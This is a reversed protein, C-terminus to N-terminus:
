IGFHYTEYGAANLYDIITKRQVPTDWGHNVLGLLGASHGYMGTMQCVRAPSCPTAAAYHQSFLVGREALADINPSVISENGYCNLERGLDHCIFQLINIRNRNKM